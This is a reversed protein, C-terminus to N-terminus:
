SPYDPKYLKNKIIYDYVADPVLYRISHGDKILDRIMSSSVEMQGTKILSIDANFKARLYAAQMEMEEASKDDRFAALVHCNAFIKEPHKWHEMAFLSDAGLIFYYETNPNKDHLIELTEYTYTSGEKDVEITSISFFPNEEIALKTMETRISGPLVENVNKMYPTGSPMFLVEELHFQERAKEAIILHGIHVPDFTGGMIGVKRM